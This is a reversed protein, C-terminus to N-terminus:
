GCGMSARVPLLIREFDRNNALCIIFFLHPQLWTAVNSACFESVTLVRGSIRVFGVWSLGLWGCILCASAAHMELSAEIRKRRKGQRGGAVLATWGDDGEGTM